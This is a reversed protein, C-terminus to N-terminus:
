RIFQVQVGNKSLVGDGDDCFWKKEWFVFILLVNYLDHM